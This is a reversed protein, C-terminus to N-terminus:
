TDPLSASYRECHGAMLGALSVPLSEAVRLIAETDDSDKM